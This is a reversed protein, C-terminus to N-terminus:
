LLTIWYVIKNYIKELLSPPQVVTTEISLVASNTADPMTTPTVLVPLLPTGRVARQSFEQAFEKFNHEEDQFSFQEFPGDQANLVFPAITVIQPHNWVKEFAYQYYLAIQRDSLYKNSWGTETIFVPLNKNTYKKLQKLDYLFSDIKNEGSIDPRVSFDPNPYAHSVWGDIKNFLDPKRNHMRDLFLNWKLSSKKDSAANDLGAPMVFFNDSKSKFIDIALNLSDAYSEPNITNGFEDARNVENFFIVYRNITPWSLDNLFNSFDLLDFENPIDWHPGSATTAIRIIPIIQLKKCDDFFKQWKNHDRDTSQIPVVVYGWSGNRDNNVLKAAAEIEDPFLIHIGLKNNQTALPDTIAFVHSSITLYLLINTAIVWKFM